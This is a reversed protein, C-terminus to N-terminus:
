WYYDAVGMGFLAMVVMFSIILIPGVIILRLILVARSWNRRQMTDNNSVAWVILLILGVLPISSLLMLIIWDVTRLPVEEKQLVNKQVPATNDDNIVEM